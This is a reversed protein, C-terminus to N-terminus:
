ARKIVLKQSEVTDIAGAEELDAKLKRVAAAGKGKGAKQAIIKEVRGIRLDMSAAFDEDGFGAADLVPWAAVPVLKRKEETEVTILTGDGVINGSRLVHEKVAERLHKAVAAVTEAQRVLGVIQEPEMNALDVTLGTLAAVNARVMATRAECDHYRRCHTCHLGPHYIGDWHIVAALGALWPDLSERTMTYNEIEGERVWLVTITVETLTRDELLILAGYGKMQHQYDSDKRGTKWDGARAITGNVAYLDVHGTLTVSHIRQDTVDLLLDVDAEFEVETLADKFSPAVNAWLKSGLACLMRVEDADVNHRDAITQIADWDLSGTEALSRLAEHAATGVSAADNSENIEVPVPRVSGPCRFAMPLASCRITPLTPAPQIM